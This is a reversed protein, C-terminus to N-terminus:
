QHGQPAIGHAAKLLLFPLSLHLLPSLLVVSWGDQNQGGIAWVKRHKWPMETNQAEHSPPWQCKTFPSLKSTWSFNPCACYETLADSQSPQPPSHQQWPPTESDEHPKRLGSLNGFPSQLVRCTPFHKTASKWEVLHQCAPIDETLLSFPLGLSVCPSVRPLIRTCSFSIM